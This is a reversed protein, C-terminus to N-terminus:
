RSLYDIIGLVTCLLFQSIVFAACMVGVGRRFACMFVADQRLEDIADRLM